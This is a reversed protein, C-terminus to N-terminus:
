CALGSKAVQRDKRAKQAMVLFAVGGALGLVIVGVELIWWTLELGQWSFRLSLKYTVLLGLLLIWTAMGLGLSGLQTGFNVLSWLTRHRRHMIFFLYAPAVSSLVSALATITTSFLYYELNM